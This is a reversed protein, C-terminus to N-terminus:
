RGPQSGNAGLQVDQVSCPGFPAVAGARYNGGSPRLGGARGPQYLDKWQVLISGAALVDIFNRILPLSAGSCLAM